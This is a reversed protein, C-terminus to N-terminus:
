PASCQSSQCACETAVQYTHSKTSGDPCTLNTTRTETNIATCCTCQKQFSGAESSFISGSTCSGHCMTMEVKETSKCGDVELEENFDVTPTCGTKPVINCVSCCGDTVINEEPCSPDFPTCSPSTCQSYVENTLPDTMCECTTCQDDEPIWTQGIAYQKTQYHCVNPVCDGCCQGAVPIYTYGASCTGCRVISCTTEYEGLVNTSSSCTCENCVDEMWVSGPQHSEGDYICSSAPECIRLTCGCEDHNDIATWGSKCPEPMSCDNCECVSTTCCENLVKESLHKNTPCSLDGRDCTAYDCECAYVPCCEEPNTRYLRQYSSCTPKVPDCSNVDCVCFQEPQSPCCEALGSERTERGTTLIRYGPSQPCTTTKLTPCLTSDCECEYTVCCDTASSTQIKKYGFGCEQTNPECKSVECQCEYSPCCEGPNSVVPVMGGQCIPVQVECTSRDCQCEYRTCCRENEVPSLVYGANCKPIYNDPCLEPKCVCTATPCCQDPNVVVLEEGEECTTLSVGICLTTDCECSYTMCCGKTGSRKAVLTLGVSSCRPRVIPPCRIGVCLREHDNSICSYAPCCVDDDTVTALHEGDECVPAEPCKLQSQVIQGDPQCTAIFCPDNVVSWQEGVKRGAETEDTCHVCESSSVCKGDLLILDGTCFCGEVNHSIKLGSYFKYNTCTKVVSPGCASYQAGMAGCVSYPCLDDRRWHACTGTRACDAAYASLASCGPWSAPVIGAPTAMGASKKTCTELYETKDVLCNPFTSSFIEACFSKVSFMSIDVDIIADVFCSTDANVDILWHNFFTEIADKKTQAIAYGGVWLDNSIDGDAMGCLGETKAAFKTPVIIEWADANLDYEFTVHLKKFTISAKSVTKSVDFGDTDGEVMLDEKLVMVKSMLKNNLTFSKSCVRRKSTSCYRRGVSIEFDLDFIDRAIIHKCPCSRSYSYGDFTHIRSSASYGRCSFDCVYSPCCGNVDFVAKPQKGNLCIPLNKASCRKTSCLLNKDSLCSCTLCSDTKHEWTSGIGHFEGTSDACGMRECRYEPCCEDDANIRVRREDTGCTIASPCKSTICVCEFTPCCMEPNVAVIEHFESDCVLPNSNCNSKDCVCEYSPCCGEMVTVLKEDNECALNQKSTCSMPECQVGTSACICKQCTEESVWTEDIEHHVNNIDICSKESTICLPCCSEGDSYALVEGAPCTTVDCVEKTCKVEGSICICNTCGMDEKWVSGTVRKLSNRYCPCDQPYVCTNGDCYQEPPCIVSCAEFVGPCNARSKLGISGDTSSSALMMYRSAAYSAYASPLDNKVKQDGVTNDHDSKDSGNSIVAENSKVGEFLSIGGFKRDESFTNTSEGSLIIDNLLPFHANSGKVIFSTAICKNVPCCSHTDTIVKKMGHPCDLVDLLPCKTPNCACEYSACCSDIPYTLLDEYFECIPPSFSCKLNCDSSVIRYSFCCDDSKEAVVKLGFPVSPYDSCKRSHFRVNNSSICTCLNCPDGNFYWTEGYHREKGLEDVCNSKSEFNSYNYDAKDKLANSSDAEAYVESVKALKVMMDNDHRGYEDGYMSFKGGDVSIIGSMSAKANAKGFMDHIGAMHSASAGGLSDSKLSIISDPAEYIGYFHANAKSGMIGSFVNLDADGMDSSGLKFTSSEQDFNVGIYGRDRKGGAVKADASFSGGDRKGGAVNADASFSGKSFVDANLESDKALKVMKDNDQHGYEDGYM